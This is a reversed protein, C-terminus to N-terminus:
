GEVEGDDPWAAAVLAPLLTGAKGNLRFLPPTTKDEVDLNIFIVTAGFKLAVQPLSAAPEVMGSTGISFFFDCTASAEIANNLAEEPLREGFWVVGPRLPSGCITCRPPVAKSEDWTEAPHGNAFCRTRRINGHLEIVASSGALQHLSDVNQTILTLRPVLRELAALAHHAPNPAAAEVLQRRWAYWEWVLKPNRQFAEPTALEEPRYQAWLGTMADRFTPLGSEASIGAGTLAVVHRALRLASVLETPLNFDSM